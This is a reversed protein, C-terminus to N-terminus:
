INDFIKINSQYSSGKILRTTSKIRSGWKIKDQDAM